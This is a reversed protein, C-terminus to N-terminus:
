RAFISNNFCRTPESPLICKLDFSNLIDFLIRKSHSDILKEINLDGYVILYKHNFLVNCIISDFYNFFANIHKPDPSRYFVLIALNENNIFVGACECIFESVHIILHKIPKCLRNITKIKGYTFQLEM